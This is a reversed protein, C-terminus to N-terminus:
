APRWRVCFHSSSNLVEGKVYGTGRRRVDADASDSKLVIKKMESMQRRSSASPVLM